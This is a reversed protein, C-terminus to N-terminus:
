ANPLTLVESHHETPGIPPIRGIHCPLAQPRGLHYGQAYHVGLATATNLESLTEVGEALVTADVARAFGVLAAVMAARAPDTDLNRTITMDLKIIDPRIEFLHQFGAYGAGADDVAILCGLDRFEECGARVAQYDNVQDHETIEVITRAPDAETLAALVAPHGVGTASVNVSISIDGPLAPLATL